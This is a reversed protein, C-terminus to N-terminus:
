MSNRLGPFITQFDFEKRLETMVENERRRMSKRAVPDLDDEGASHLMGHVIYLALEEAFSSDDREEGERWAFDACIVLEVATDGPFLMDDDELYAFTIIDTTGEHELADWNLRTMFRDDVFSVTV